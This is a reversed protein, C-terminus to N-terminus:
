TGPLPPIEADVVRRPLPRELMLELPMARHALALEGDAGARERAARLRLVIVPSWPCLVDSFFVLGAM